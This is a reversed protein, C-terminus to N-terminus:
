RGAARMAWGTSVAVEWRPKRQTMRPPRRHPRQLHVPRGARHLLASAPTAAAQGAWRHAEWLAQEQRQVQWFHDLLDSEHACRRCHGPDFVGPQHRHEILM